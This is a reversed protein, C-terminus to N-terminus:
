TVAGAQDGLLGSVNCFRFGAHIGGLVDCSHGADGDVDGVEDACVTRPLATTPLTDVVVTVPHVSYTGEFIGDWSCM